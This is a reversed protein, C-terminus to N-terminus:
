AADRDDRLRIAWRWMLTGVLIAWLLFASSAVMSLAMAAGSFGTPAQAAGAAAMGLGDLLGVVGLWAPYQAGSLIALGFAILTLGSLIGLFGAVGIEIWRLAHAAEYALRRAEGESAAWRDVAVKLAVGDVAQLVAAVAISAVAGAAGIRAWAAARGPQFTGALAVLGAGLGFLGAFQGLHSWVYHPDAAYEAFAAPADGPDAGLPHLLTAVILLAAGVLIAAAGIRALPQATSM